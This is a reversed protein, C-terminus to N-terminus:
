EVPIAAMSLTAGQGEDKSSSRVFPPCPAYIFPPCLAKNAQLGLSGTFFGTHGRKRGALGHGLRASGGVRDLSGKQDAADELAAEVRLELGM